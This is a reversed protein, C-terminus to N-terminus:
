FPINEAGGAPGEEEYPPPPADAPPEDMPPPASQQQPAQYSGAPAPHSPAQQAPAPRPGPAGPTAPGVFQFSEVFIRHKSRKVGDKGEWSDFDLRGEVLIQKGKSFYQQIVEATRGMSRCDIFCTAEHPQGDKGKWRRNTALGFDVVPTQSPLYSLQPDRTLNGIMIIRNYSAM